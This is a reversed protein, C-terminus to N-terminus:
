ETAGHCRKYKKGSGCPCPANRSAPAPVTGVPQSAPRNPRSVHARPSPKRGPSRSGQRGNESPEGGLGLAPAQQQMPSGSAGAAGDITPSTYQLARPQQRQGFGKAKVEVSSEQDPLPVGEKAPAAEAEGIQVDANYLFGVAEEKIGDMMQAFMDFGERQYEVLPDRQAYARLGVGEQLYDMEYLHERWKRDIVALLIQREVVRMADPHGLSEERRLYAAHADKKLEAKLFEVDFTNREAGAERELQEVSTGVPYLQKLNTMLQDLDWDEAYAKGTGVTGGEVYADVVDDIMGRVQDHLDEGELIRQREAYVVQRQKNMVEDYKLVNKRIEANQAEIQTQANKIQKSVMKSEIPVDEPINFRDM